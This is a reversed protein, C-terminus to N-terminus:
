SMIQIERFGTGGPVFARLSVADGAVAAIMWVVGQEYAMRADEASPEGRGNPHSHYHGVMRLGALEGQASGTRRTTTERSSRVLDFQIQPDIAFHCTPDPARNPSPVIATVRPSGDAASDGVLLGCCEEPYAARAHSRILEADSVTLIV